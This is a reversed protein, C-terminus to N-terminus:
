KARKRSLNSFAPLHAVHMKELIELLEPIMQVEDKILTEMLHQFDNIASVLDLYFDADRLKMRAQIQAAIESRVHFAVNSRFQQLENHCAM